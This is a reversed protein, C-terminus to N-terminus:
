GSWSSRAASASVGSREFETPLLFEVDWAVLFALGGLEDLAHTRALAADVAALVEVLVARLVVLGLAAVLALAEGARRRAVRLSGQAGCERSQEPGHDWSSYHDVPGRYIGLRPGRTLAGRRGVGHGLKRRLEPALHNTRPM